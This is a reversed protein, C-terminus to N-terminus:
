ERKLYLLKQYITLMVIIVSFRSFLVSPMRLYKMAECRVDDSCRIGKSLSVLALMNDADRVQAHDADANFGRFRQLRPKGTEFVEDAPVLESYDGPALSATVAVPCADTKDGQGTFFLLVDQVLYFLRGAVLDSRSGSFIM